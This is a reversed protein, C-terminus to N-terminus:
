GAKREIGTLTAISEPDLNVFYTLQDRGRLRESLLESASYNLRDLTEKSVMVTLNGQGLKAQFKKSLTQLRSAINVTDGLATYNRKVSGGVNGVLAPGIHAGLGLKFNKLGLQGMSDQLETWKVDLDNLACLLKLVDNRPDSSCPFFMVVADGVINDIVAGYKSFISSVFDAYRSIIQVVREPSLKESLSTFDRLDIFVSIVESRKPETQVVQEGDRLYEELVIPPVYQQFIKRVNAEKEFNAANDFYLALFNSVKEMVVLDDQTLAPMGKQGFVVLLGYKEAPTQIPCVVLSSVNLLELLMRNRDNLVKKYDNVDVILRSDGSELITAFFGEKAKPNPFEFEVEGVQGRLENLGRSESLFLKKRRKSVLFLAMQSYEFKEQLSNLCVQLVKQPDKITILETSLERLMNAEKFRRDLMESKEHLELNRERAKEYYLEVNRMIVLLSRQSKALLFIAFAAATTVIPLIKFGAWLEAVYSLYGVAAGVTAVFAVIQLLRFFYQFAAFEVRLKFSSIEQGPKVGQDLDIKFGKLNYLHKLGDLVGVTNLVMDSYITGELARISIEYRGLGLSTVDLKCALNAKKYNRPLLKFFVFPSASKLFHYELPNINQEKFLSEGIKRYINEDGTKARVLATFKRGFEVSVWNEDTLLYSVPIKLEDCVQEFLRESYHNKLYNYTARYLKTTLQPRLFDPDIQQHTTATDM